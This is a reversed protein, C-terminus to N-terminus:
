VDAASRPAFTLEKKGTTASVFHVSRQRSVPFSELEM